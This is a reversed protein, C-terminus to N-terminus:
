RQLMQVCQSSDGLLLVLLDNSQLITLSGFKSKKKKIIYTQKQATVPHPRFYKKLSITNDTATIQLSAPINRM